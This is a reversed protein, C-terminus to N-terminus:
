SKMFPMPIEKGLPCNEAKKEPRKIKPLLGCFSTQLWFGATVFVMYLNKAEWHSGMIGSLGGNMPSYQRRYLAAWIGEELNVKEKDKRLEKSGEYHTNLFSHQLSLIFLKPDKGHLAASQLGGWFWDREKRQQSCRTHCGPLEAGGRVPGLRNSYTGLDAPAHQSPFSTFHHFAKWATEPSPPHMDTSKFRDTQTIGKDSFTTPLAWLHVRCWRKAWLCSWSDMFHEKNHVQLWLLCIDLMTEQLLGKSHPSLFDTRTLEEVGLASQGAQRTPCSRLLHGVGGRRALCSSVWHM